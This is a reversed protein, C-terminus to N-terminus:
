AAALCEAAEELLLYPLHSPDPRVDPRPKCFSQLASRVLALSQHLRARSLLGDSPAETVYRDLFHTARRRLYARGTAVADEHLSAMFYGVDAAPDGLGAGDTDVIAIRDGDLLLQRPAYAGHVLAARPPAIALTGALPDVVTKAREVLRPAVWQLRAALRRVDELRSRSDPLSCASLDHLEALARAAAGSARLAGSASDTQHLAGSLPTGALHEMLVFHRDDVFGLPAPVVLDRGRTQAHVANLAQWAQVAKGHRAFLKGVVEGGAAAPYGIVARRHPLYRLLRAHSRSGSVAPLVAAVAAVDLAWPLSPLKWDSPVLEVLAGSRELFAGAVRGSALSEYRDRYVDRLINDRRLTVVARRPENGRAGSDDIRLLVVCDRGPSYFVDEVVVSGGSEPAALVARACREAAEPSTALELLAREPADLPVGNGLVSTASRGGVSM